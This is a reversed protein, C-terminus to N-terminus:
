DEGSSMKKMAKLSLPFSLSFCQHSLSARILQRRHSYPGPIPVAAKQNCSWAGFLQTGGPSVIKCKVNFNGSWM